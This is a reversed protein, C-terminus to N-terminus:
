IILFIVFNKIQKAENINYVMKNVGVFHNIVPIKSNECAIKAKEIVNAFNEWKSYELVQQLERAYWFEEGDETYHKIKEFVEMENLTIENTM